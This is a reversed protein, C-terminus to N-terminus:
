IILLYTKNFNLLCDGDFISKTRHITNLSEPLDSHITRFENVNSCEVGKSVFFLMEKVQKLHACPENHLFFNQSSLYITHECSKGSKGYRCDCSSNNLNVYSYIEANNQDSIKIKNDNNQVTFSFKRRTKKAVRRNMVYDFLKEKFHNIFEGKFFLFLDVPNYARQRKLLNEKITKFQAEAFNNTFNGRIRVDDKANKLKTNIHSKILNKKNM